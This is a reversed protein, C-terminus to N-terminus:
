FFILKSDLGLEMGKLKFDGKGDDAAIYNCLERIKEENNVGIWLLMEYYGLRSPSSLKGEKISGCFFFFEEVMGMDIFYLLFQGYTGEGLQFGQERMKKFTKFAESVHELAVEDDDSNRAKELCIAILGNYEKLGTERGLNGFVAITAETGLKDGCMKILRKFRDGQTNKYVWKQKRERSVEKRRLSRDHNSLQSLWPITLLSGYSSWNNTM